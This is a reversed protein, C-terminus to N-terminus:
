VTDIFKKWIVAARSIYSSSSYLLFACSVVFLVPTLPYLPVRFPRSMAPDRQRLLILAVGVLLLFSWFVPATFEVMAEFGDKQQAGLGSLALAIAAQLVFAARPVGRVSDWGGLLRLANSQPLVAGSAPGATRPQCGARHM